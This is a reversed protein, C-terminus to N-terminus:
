DNTRYTSHNSIFNNTDIKFLDAIDSHQICSSLHEYIAIQKNKSCKAYAHKKTKELLTRDTKVVYCSLDKVFLSAFM